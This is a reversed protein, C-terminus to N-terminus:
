WFEVAGERGRSVEKIRRGRRGRGERGSRHQSMLEPCVGGLLLPNGTEAKFYPAIGESVKKDWAPDRQRRKSSSRVSRDWGNAGKEKTSMEASLSEM